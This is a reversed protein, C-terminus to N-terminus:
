QEIGIIILPVPPSVRGQRLIHTLVREYYGPGSSMESQLKKTPIIEIGLDIDEGIYFGLHKVFLDFEIFPYKGFQVEVSIRDKVFDIQHYSSIPTINNKSITSKQKESPLHVIEKTIKPDSTVYYSYRKEDWKEKNLQKRIEKNMMKPSYLIKGKMTKEKSVKTRCKESDVNEISKKIIDFTKPHHVQIWELGNMHSYIHKIKL